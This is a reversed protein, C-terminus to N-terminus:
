DVVLGENIKGLEIIKAFQDETLKLLDWRSQESLGVEDILVGRITRKGFAANYTMRLTYLRDNEQYLHRLEEETFVSHPAAYEVFADESVFSKRARTEEVVCLSTVVSRFRARGIIDTTRYVIVIDGKKLRTLAMKAIYVKHITNTHSIDTVIDPSETKLISDPFLNTHYEPYIALLFKNVGNSHVYPYDSLIDDELDTMSRLLVKETGNKTTKSGKEKFGYREFLSILQSHTDFVTVYVESVNEDIAHDFIKKIVREGLKTGHAIIKFTGVKLRKAAPLSPSVDTIEGTEIKLYVFGRLAGSSTEIVYAPEDSKKKFWESFEKYQKKLSDFIPDKLNIEKFKKLKLSPM